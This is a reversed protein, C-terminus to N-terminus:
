KLKIKFSLYDGILGTFVYVAIMVFDSKVMATIGVYSSYLWFLKIFASTTMTGMVIDKSTYRVNLTRTFSFGFQSISLLIYEMLFVKENEKIEEAM